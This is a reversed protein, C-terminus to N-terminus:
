APGRAARLDRYSPLPVAGSLLADFEARHEPLMYPLLPQPVRGALPFAAAVRADWGPWLRAADGAGVRGRCGAAGCRCAFGGPINLVAYDSTLEDGPALDRVAVEFGNGIGWDSADCSHNVQRAHDWCLVANGAEDAYGYHDLVRRLPAPLAAAEAAPLVRDFPDLVWVVTGAPIPRTAFVGVGVVPGAPRVETDPHM